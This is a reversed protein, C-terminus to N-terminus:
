PATIFVDLIGPNHANVLIAWIIMDFSLHITVVFPLSKTKQFVYGQLFAFPFTMLPGWSTYGIEWLFSTFIVAQLLNAQWTPFHQRFFAFVLCIFFLEDWLGVYNVGVLLRLILDLTPVEPWNQYVDFRIFYVPLVLYGLVLVGVLYAWETRTWPQGRRVPFRVIRERFVFRSILYPVVVAASLTIAFRAMGENSLDAKVNMSSIIALGLGILALHRFLLRDVLFATAVGVALLPLGVLREHFVFLPIASVAVLTSPLLKWSWRQAATATPPTDATDPTTEASVRWLIAPAM